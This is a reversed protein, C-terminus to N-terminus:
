FVRGSPIDKMILLLNQWNQNITLLITNEGINTLRIFQKVLALTKRVVHVKIFKVLCNYILTKLPFLLKLKKTFCKVTINKEDTFQHFKKIFQKLAIKIKRSM